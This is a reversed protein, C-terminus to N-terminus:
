SDATNNILESWGASDFKGFLMMKFETITINKKELIIFWNSIM